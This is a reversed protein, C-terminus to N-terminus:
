FFIGKIQLRSLNRFRRFQLKRKWGYRRMMVMEMVGNGKQDYVHECESFVHVKFSASPYLPSTKPPIYMPLKVYGIIPATDQLKSVVAM